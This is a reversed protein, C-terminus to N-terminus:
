NIAGYVEAELNRIEDPSLSNTIDIDGFMVSKINISEGIIEDTTGEHAPILEWDIVVDININTKM